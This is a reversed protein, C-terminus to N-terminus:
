RCACFIVLYCLLQYVFEILIMTSHLRAPLFITNVSPCQLQLLNAYYLQLQSKHVYLYHAIGVKYKEGENMSLQLFSGNKGQFHKCCVFQCAVSSIHCYGSKKRLVFYFVCSFVLGCKLCWWKVLELECENEEDM